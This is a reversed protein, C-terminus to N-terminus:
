LKAYYFRIPQKTKQFCNSMMGWEIKKVWWENIIVLWKFYGLKRYGGMQCMKKLECWEFIEVKKHSGYKVGWESIELVWVYSEGGRRGDM